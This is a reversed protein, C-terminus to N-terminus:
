VATEAQRRGALRADNRDHAAAATSSSCCRKFLTLLDSRFQKGTILYVYFNYAFVFCSLAGIIARCHLFFLSFPLFRALVAAVSVSGRLVIYVLSTAIVMVTPVASSSSTSQHHLQPALSAAAYDSARRVERILMANIVLVTLPLAVYVALYLVNSTVYLVRYHDDHMHSIIGGIPVAVVTLGVIVKKARTKTCL